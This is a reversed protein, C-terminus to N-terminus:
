NLGLGGGECHQMFHMLYHTKKVVDLLDWLWYYKSETFSFMYLCAASSNEM